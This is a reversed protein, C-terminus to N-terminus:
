IFFLSIIILVMILSIGVILYIQTQELEYGFLETTDATNDTNDEVKDDEITKVNLGTSFGSCDKVVVTNTNKVFFGNYSVKTVVEYTGSELDNLNLNFNQQFTEDVDINIGKIENKIGTGLVEATFTARQDYKGTNKAKSFVYLSEDCKIVNQGIGSSVMIIKNDPRVVDIELLETISGDAYTLTLELIHTGDRASEPIDFRLTDTRTQGSTLLFTNTSEIIDTNGLDVGIITGTIKVNKETKSGQNTITVKLDFNEDQNVSEDFEFKEIYVDGIVKVELRLKDYVQGSSSLLRIEGSYVGTRANNPLDIMIDIDEYDSEDIDLGNTISFDVVSSDLSYDSYIEELDGKLEIRLDKVNVDGTNEIRIEYDDLSDGPEGVLKIIGNKTYLDNAFEVEVDGGDIEIELDFEFEYGEETTVTVYGQYLDVEIGKPVDIEIEVRKSKGVNLDFKKDNELDIDNDEIEDGYDQGELDHFKFDLNNLDITGINEIKFSKSEDRNIEGDMSVLNNELSIKLLAGTVPTVNLSTTSEIYLTDDQTNSVKILGEYVGFDISLPKYDVTFTTSNTTGLEVISTTSLTTAVSDSNLTPNTKSITLNLVQNGTNTITYEVSKTDGTELTDEVTTPTLTFSAAASVFTLSLLVAVLLTTIKNFKTQVM